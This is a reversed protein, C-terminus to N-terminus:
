RWSYWLKCVAHYEYERRKAATDSKEYRTILTESEDRGAVEQDSEGGAAVMLSSAKQLDNRLASSARGILSEESWM